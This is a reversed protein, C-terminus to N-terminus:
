LSFCFWLREGGSESFGGFRMGPAAWPGPSERLRQPAPPRAPAAALGGRPPSPAARPRAAPRPPAAAAQPSPAPAAPGLGGPAAPAQPYREPSAPVARLTTSPPPDRAEGGSPSGGARLARHEAIQQSVRAAEDRPPEWVLSSRTLFATSRGAWRLPLYVSPTPLQVPTQTADGSTAHCPSPKFGAPAM